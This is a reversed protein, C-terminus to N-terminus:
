SIDLNPENAPVVIAQPTKRLLRTFWQCLHGTVVIGIGASVVLSALIPLGSSIWLAGFAMLGVAIPLFFLALHRLLLTAAKDVMRLPVLRTQLLLFMVLVAASNGPVPMHLADVLCHGLWDVLWLLAIQGGLVALDRLQATRRHAIPRPM